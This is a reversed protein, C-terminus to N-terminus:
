FALSPEQWHPKKRIVKPVQNISIEVGKMKDM